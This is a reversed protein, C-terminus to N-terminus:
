IGCGAVSRGRPQEDRQNSRIRSRWRVSRFYRVHQISQGGRHGRRDSRHRDHQNPSLRETEFDRNWNWVYPWRDRGEIVRVRAACDVWGPEGFGGYCRRVSGTWVCMMTATSRRESASPETMREPAYNTVTFWLVTVWGDRAFRWYVTERTVGGGSVGPRDWLRMGRFLAVAAERPTLGATTM